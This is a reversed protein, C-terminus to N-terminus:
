SSTMYSGDLRCAIRTDSLLCAKLAAIACLTAWGDAGIRSILRGERIAM